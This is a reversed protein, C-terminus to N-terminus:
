GDIVGLEDIKQQVELKTYGITKFLASPNPKLRFQHREEENVVVRYEPEVGDASEGVELVRDFIYIENEGLLKYKIIGDKVPIKGSLVLQHMNEFDKKTKLISPSGYM